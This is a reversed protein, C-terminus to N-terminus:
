FKKLVVGLQRAVSIDSTSNLTFVTWMGAATSGSRATLTPIGTILQTSCHRHDLQLSLCDVTIFSFPLSPGRNLSPLTRHAALTPPSSASPCLRNALHYLGIPLVLQHRHFQLAFVTQSEAITSDSPCHSNLTLITHVLAM